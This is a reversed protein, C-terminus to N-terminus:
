VIRVNEHSNNNSDTGSCRANEQIEDVVANAVAEALKGAWAHVGNVVFGRSTLGSEIRSKLMGRDLAM